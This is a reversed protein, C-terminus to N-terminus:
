GRRSGALRRRIPRLLNRATLLADQGLNAAKSAPSKGTEVLPYGFRISLDGAMHNFRAHQADTWNRARSLPDFEDTKEVPQWQVKEAGTPRVTSSGRVPRNVAREFDFTSPDLGVYSFIQDVEKEPDTILDEYRVFLAPDDPNADLFSAMDAAGHRWGDVAVDFHWEWSRISSEAVARGDRMLLILKEDPFFRRFEALGVTRPHKSVLFKPSPKFAAEIGPLTDPPVQIRRREDVQSVMFDVIARGLSETLDDTHEPVFGWRPNARWKDDLSSVVDALAPISAMLQNERLPIGLGCDPHVCLLDEVYNTGCRPAVGLIFIPTTM